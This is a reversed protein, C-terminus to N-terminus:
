KLFCSLIIQKRPDKIQSLMEIYRCTAWEPLIIDRGKNNKIMCKLKDFCMDVESSNPNENWLECLAKIYGTFAHDLLNIEHMAEAINFLSTGTSLSIEKKIRELEPKLLDKVRNDIRRKMSVENYIQFGVLATVLGSLMAVAFMVSDWEKNWNQFLTCGLAIASVLM